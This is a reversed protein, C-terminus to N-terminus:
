FGTLGSYTVIKSSTKQMNHIFKDLWRLVAFVIGVVVEKTGTPYEFAGILQTAGVDLLWTVVASALGIAAVRLIEVFAVWMSQLVQKDMKPVILNTDVPKIEELIVPKEVVVVDVPKTPVEIQKSQTKVPKRGRLYWKGNKKYTDLYLM